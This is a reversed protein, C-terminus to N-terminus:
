GNRRVYGDVAVQALVPTATLGLGLALVLAIRKFMQPKRQLTINGPIIRSITRVVEAISIIIAQRPISTIAAATHAALEVKTIAGEAV